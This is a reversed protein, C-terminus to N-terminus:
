KCSSPIDNKNKGTFSCKWIFMNEAPTMKLSLQEGNLDPTYANEKFAVSITCDNKLKATNIYKSSGLGSIAEVYAKEDADGESSLCKGRSVYYEAVAEKMDSMYALAETVAENQIIEVKAAAIKAAAEQHSRAAEEKKKEEESKGCAVLVLSLLIM